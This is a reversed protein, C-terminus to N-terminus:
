SWDFGIQFVIFYRFNQDVPRLLDVDFPMAFQFLRVRLKHAFWGQARRRRIDGLGHLAYQVVVVRSQVRTKRVAATDM